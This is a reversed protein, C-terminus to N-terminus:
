AVTDLGVHMLIGVGSPPGGDPMAPTSRSSPGDCPAVLCQSIPDIAIGDGVMKGAFVPDPVEELPLTFGSVPALLILTQAEM